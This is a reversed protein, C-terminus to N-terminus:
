GVMISPVRPRHNRMQWAIAHAMVHDDHDQRGQAAFKGHKNGIFTKCEMFLREDLSYMLDEHIAKALHDLMIPRTKINTPWGTKLYSDKYKEDYHMHKYLFPYGEVNDVLAVVAHGSSALEVGWFANNYEKVLELSRYAFEHPKWQATLTAVHLGSERELIVTVSSDHESGVLGEAVDTGAVYEVGPKPQSWVRLRGGYRQNTPPKARKIRETIVDKDFYCTGTILFASEDDEPYEQEFLRRMEGKKRRRWKVQQLSLGRQSILFSEEDSITDRIETEDDGVLPLVNREDHFWPLFIPVWQSHPNTKADKWLEYYHNHGNATTEFVVEGESCAELLSAILNEIEDQRGPWFAVESGHIRQLTSGRASTKARATGVYFRSDQHAFKIEKKESRTKKIQLSPALNAYFTKAMEFIIETDQQTHALTLCKQGPTQITHFSTAQEETTIGGRRYKLVLYRSRGRKRAWEKFGRYRRQISNRIFPRLRGKKDRIYLFADAFEPYKFRFEETALLGTNM